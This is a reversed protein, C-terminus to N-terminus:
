RILPEPAVVTAGLYFFGGTSVSYRVEYEEKMKEYHHQSNM